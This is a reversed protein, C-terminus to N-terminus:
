RRRYVSVHMTSDATFPQEHWGGWREGLGVGALRAMLDMESPWILRYSSGNSRIGETSLRVVNETLLQTVPDYRCVNIGVGNRGVWRPRVYEHEETWTSPVVAEVVFAGEDDLHRAANAFCRLQDDQTQLNFITNFVVYVLAYTGPRTASAMDGITVDIDSGGPKSRLKGVEDTSQEIGAVEVGREALPLAIRGDGIGFELARGGGALEALFQCAADEDGRLWSAGADGRVAADADDMDTRPRFTAGDPEM